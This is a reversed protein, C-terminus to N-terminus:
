YLELEIYKSNLMESYKKLSSQPGYLKKQEFLMELEIIVTSDCFTIEKGSKCNCLELSSQLEKVSSENFYFSPHIKIQSNNPLISVINEIMGQPGNRNVHREACTVGINNVGLTKPIYFKKLLEISFICVMTKKQNPFVADNIGFYGLADDRFWFTKDQSQEFTSSSYNKKYSIQGEEIYFHGKCKKHKLLEEISPTFASEKYNWTCFIHFKKDIINLLNIVRRTLPKQGFKQLLRDFKSARLEIQDSFFLPKYGRLPIILVQTLNLKFSLIILKVISESIPNSIFFLNVVRQDNEFHFNM